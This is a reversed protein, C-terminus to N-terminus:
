GAGACEAATVEAGEALIVEERADEVEKGRVIGTARCRARM